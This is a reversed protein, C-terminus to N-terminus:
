KGSSVEEIRFAAVIANDPDLILLEPLGDSGKSVRAANWYTPVLRIEGASVKKPISQSRLGKM